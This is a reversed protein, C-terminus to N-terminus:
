YCDCVWKFNTCIEIGRTDCVETRACDNCRHDKTLYNNVGVVSASGTTLSKVIGFKEVDKTIKTSLSKKEQFSIYALEKIKSEIDELQLLYKSIQEREFNVDMKKILIYKDLIEQVVEISIGIGTIVSISNKYNDSLSDLNEGIKKLKEFEAQVKKIVGSKALEISLDTVL